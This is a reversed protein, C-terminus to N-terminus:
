NCGGEVLSTRHYVQSKWFPTEGGTRSNLESIGECAEVTQHIGTLWVDSQLHGASVFFVQYETSVM